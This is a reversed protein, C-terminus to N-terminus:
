GALALEEACADLVRATADTKAVRRAAEAMALLKEPEAFLTKLLMALKEADLDEQQIVIAAGAQALWEGNKTQHDDIAFPFPVMIAGVGAAAIESVTLAGARCIILDAAGYAAAMDAIFPTVEAEVGAQRYAERAIDLHRKGAQHVVRPRLDEGLLAIAQPVLENIAVAGLSGGLVLLRLPSEKGIRVQPEPLQAIESRVPNGVQRAGPLGSPFAELVRNAIRALLRNTTGAVANQEHIILPIGALRAAVGGPGTAFGGFGLVADPQVKKVVARAQLIARLIQLPAKLLALKGKGRVGEVSICHLPIDVDPILQAEIGRATGLWEIAAGQERLANAVALAPFVHGGTGGAMLLFKKGSFPASHEVM